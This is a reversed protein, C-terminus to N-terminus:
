GCRRERRHRDFQEVNPFCRHCVGCEFDMTVHEPCHDSGYQDVQWGDAIALARAWQPQDSGSDYLEGCVDCIITISKTRM